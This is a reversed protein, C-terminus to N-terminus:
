HSSKGQKGARIGVVDIRHSGSRRSNTAHYRREGVVGGVSQRDDDTAAVSGNGVEEQIIISGISIGYSNPNRSATQRIRTPIRGRPHARANDVLGMPSKKVPVKLLRAATPAGLKAACDLPATRTITLLWIIGSGSSYARMKPRKASPKTM